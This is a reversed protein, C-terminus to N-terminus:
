KGFVLYVVSVIIGALTLGGTVGVMVNRQVRLDYNKAAEESYNTKWINNSDIIAQYNFQFQPWAERWQSVEEVLARVNQHEAETYVFVVNGHIDEIAEVAGLTSIGLSFSVLCILLAILVKKM